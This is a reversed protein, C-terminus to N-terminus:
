KTLILKGAHTIRLTYVADDLIIRALGEGGVLARADHVPLRDVPDRRQAEPPTRDM